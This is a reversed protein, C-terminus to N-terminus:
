KKHYILKNNRYPRFIMKNSKSNFGVIHNKEFFLRTPIDYLEYNPKIALYIKICNFKDIIVQVKKDILEDYPDEFTLTDIRDNVYYNKWVHVTDEIFGGPIVNSEIAQNSPCTDTPCNYFLSISAKQYRYNIDLVQPVLEFFMFYISDQSKCNSYEVFTEKTKFDIPKVVELIVTDHDIEYDGNVVEHIFGTEDFYRYHFYNAYDFGLVHYTNRSLPDKQKCIYTPGIYKPACCSTFILVVLSFSISKIM